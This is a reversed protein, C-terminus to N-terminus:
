CNKKPLGMNKKLLKEEWAMFEQIAEITNQVYDLSLHQIEKGQEDLTTFKVLHKEMNSFDAYVADLDPLKTM